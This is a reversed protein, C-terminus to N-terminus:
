LLAGFKWTFNTIAKRINLFFTVFHKYIYSFITLLHYSNERSTQTIHLIDPKQSIKFIFCGRPKLTESQVAFIQQFSIKLFFM